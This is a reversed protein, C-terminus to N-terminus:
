THDCILGGQMEVRAGLETLFRGTEITAPLAVLSPFALPIM